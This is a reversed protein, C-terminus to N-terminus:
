YFLAIFEKKEEIFIKVCKRSIYYGNEKEKRIRYGLISNLKHQIWLFRM